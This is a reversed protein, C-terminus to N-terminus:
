LVSTLLEQLYTRRRNYAIASRYHPLARKDKVILTLDTRARTMATYLLSASMFHQQTFPNTSYPVVVAVKEWESGQASHITLAYALVLKSAQEETYEVIRDPFEVTLIPHLGLFDEEHKFDIYTIVGIEGNFVELDYNNKTQRVPDGVAFFMDGRINIHEEISKPNRMKQLTRNLVEVEKRFGALIIMDKDVLLPITEDSLAPVLHIDTYDDFNLAERNHGGQRLLKANQVIGSNEAARYITTLITTPVGALIIDRLFEGPGVSPLQFADGVFLIHADNKIAGLLQKALYVDEMSTEDVIIVNYNLKEIEQAGVWKIGLLRHITKAEHGSMEQMRKAAMGTPACLAVSLGETKLLEVLTNITLTKGTGASGTLVSVGYKLANFIAQQQEKNLIDDSITTGYLFPYASNQIRRISYSIAEEAGFLEPLAMTGDHHQYILEMPATELSDEWIKKSCFPAMMEVMRRWISDKLAYTHGNDSQERIVVRTAAHYRREDAMDFGLRNALKEATKWGIGHIEMIVYPNETVTFRLSEGYKEYLKMAHTLNLGHEAAFFISDIRNEVTEWGRLIKDAKVSGIGKVSLLDAKNIHKFVKEGWRMTMAEATIPGIGPLLGSSLLNRAIHSKGSTIFINTLRLQKGYKSSEHEGEAQLYLGNLNIPWTCVAKEKGGQELHFEGVQFGGDFYRWTTWVGRILM